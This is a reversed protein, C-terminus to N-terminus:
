HLIREVEQVPIPAQLYEVMEVKYGSDTELLFYRILSGTVRNGASDLGAGCLKVRTRRNAPPDFARVELSSNTVGLSGLATLFERALRVLEFEDRVLRVGALSYVVLPLAYFSSLTQFDGELFAAQLEVFFTDLSNKDM